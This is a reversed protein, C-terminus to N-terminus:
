SLSLYDFIKIV